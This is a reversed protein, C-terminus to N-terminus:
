SSALWSQIRERVSTSEESGAHLRLSEGEEDLWTMRSSYRPAWASLEVQTGYSKVAYVAKGEMIHVLAIGHQEAYLMAGSQFGATSFIMGKHAGISGLKGLLLQVVEREVPRKQHKCEVLVKVNAGLAEFTVIVDIQYDGDPRRIVQDHKADFNTLKEGLNVLFRRVERELEEPTLNPPDFDFHIIDM